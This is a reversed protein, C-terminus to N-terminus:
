IIISYGDDENYLVKANSVCLERSWNNGGITIDFKKVSKFIDDNGLPLSLSVKEDRAIVLWKFGEGVSVGASLRGGEIMVRITNSLSLNFGTHLANVKQFVYNIISYITLYRLGCVGDCRAKMKSLAFEKGVVRDIDDFMGMGNGVYLTDNSINSGSLRGDLQVRYFVSSIGMDELMEYLETSCAYDYTNSRIDKYLPLYRTEVHVQGTYRDFIATDGYYLKIRGESLMNPFERIAVDLLMKQDKSDVNPKDVIFGNVM